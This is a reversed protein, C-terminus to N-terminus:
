KCFWGFHNTYTILGAHLYRDFFMLTIEKHANLEKFFVRVTPKNM